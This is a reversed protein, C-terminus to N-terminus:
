VVAGGANQCEVCLTENYGYAINQQAMLGLNVPDIKAYGSYTGTCSPAPKVYCSTIGGCLPCDILYPNSFLDDASLYPSLSKYEPTSQFPFAPNHSL